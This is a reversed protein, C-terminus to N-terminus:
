HIERKIREALKRAVGVDDRYNLDTSIVICLVRTGDPMLVGLPDLLFQDHATTLKRMYDEDITDEASRDRERIRAMCTELSTSLYIFLDPNRKPLLNQWEAWLDTYAQRLLPDVDQIGWFLKDSFPSRESINLTQPNYLTKFKRIRSTFFTCQAPFRYTPDTYSKKLIGSSEWEEVPEPIVTVVQGILPVVKDIFTSKGVGITGEISYWM